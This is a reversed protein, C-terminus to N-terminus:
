LIVKKMMNPLFLVRTNLKLFLRKLFPADPDGLGVSCEKTEENIIKAYLKM